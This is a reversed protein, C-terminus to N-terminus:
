RMRALRSRVRELFRTRAAQDARDMGYFALWEVRCRRHVAGRLARKVFRKGPEGQLSNILKSSGHTTVAIVRRINTLKPSPVRGDDHVDIAVGNVWVREFWGKLMAPQASWWTPYVLILTDCASLRPIWAAAVPKNDVSGRHAAHEDPSLRPDFGDAYLDALDVQHHGAQLGALVSNRVSAAFSEEVPHVYVVLANVM